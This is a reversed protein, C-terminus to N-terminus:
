GPLAPDVCAMASTDLWGNRDMHKRLSDSPEPQEFRIDLGPLCSAIFAPTAALGRVRKPAEGGWTRGKGTVHDGFRNAEYDAKTRRLWWGPAIGHATRFAEQKDILAQFTSMKETDDPFDREVLGADISGHIMVVGDERVVVSRAAPLLYNACSSGCLGDVVLDYGGGAELAAVNDLATIVDGGGTNVVLMEVLQAHRTICAGFDDDIPGSISLTASPGDYNCATPISGLTACSPLLFLAPLAVLSHLASPRMARAM